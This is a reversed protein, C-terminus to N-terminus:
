SQKKQKISQIGDINVQGAIARKSLRKVV